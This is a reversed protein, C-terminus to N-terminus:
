SFYDNVLDSIYVKKPDKDLSANMSQPRTPIDVLSVVVSLELNNMVHTEGM